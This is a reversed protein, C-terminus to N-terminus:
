GRARDEIEWAHDLLHWAARRVYRRPSWRQTVRSPEPPEAGHARAELAALALDRVAGWAERPGVGDTIRVRSGLQRVYAADAEAAHAVVAELPRGGGRPGKRLEQGVAAGATADFAAWAARLIAVWRELEPGALPDDDSPASLSPVGFDTGSGGQLRAVVLVDDTGGRPHLGRAPDGISAAYRPGSALLADLAQAEDRGSRAWGPWDIASAFVRKAGVELYARVRGSPEGASM